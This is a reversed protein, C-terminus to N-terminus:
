QIDSAKGILLATFYGCVLEGDRDTQCGDETEVRFRDNTVERTGTMQLASMQLASM